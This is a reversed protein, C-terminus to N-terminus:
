IASGDARSLPWPSLPPLAALGLDRRGVNNFESILQRARGEDIDKSDLTVGVNRAADVVQEPALFRMDAYAALLERVSDEYHHQAQQRTDPAASSTARYEDLVVMALQTFRAYNARRDELARLHDDREYSQQRELYANRAQRRQTVWSGAIGLAGGTAAAVLSEWIAM